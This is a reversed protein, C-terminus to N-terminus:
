ESVARGKRVAVDRGNKNVYVGAARTQIRGQTSAAAIYRKRGRLDYFAHSRTIVSSPKRSIQKKDGKIISVPHSQKVDFNDFAVTIEGECFLGIGKIEFNVQGLDIELPEGNAIFEYNPSNDKKKISLTDTLVMGIDQGSGRIKSNSKMAHMADGSKWVSYQRGGTIFFKVMESAGSGVLIFGYTSALKGSLHSAEVKAEFDTLNIDVYIFAGSNADVAIKLKGDTEGVSPPQGGDITIDQRWYKLNNGNFDDSFATRNNGPTFEDTVRVEGFVTKTNNFLALSLDGTNYSADSFSGQYEGNVFVNFSSNQKSVALKNDAPKLDFSKKYFLPTANISNGTATLKYVVVTGDEATLIYGQPTDGPQRCFLAGSLNGQTSKLVYSITFTAPKNAGFDHVYEGIYQSTNNLTCSGGNIAATMNDAANNIWKDRSTLPDTFGDLLLDACFAQAAAILLAAFAGSLYRGSQKM